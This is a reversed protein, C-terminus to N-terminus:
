FLHFQFVILSNSDCEDISVNLRKRLGLLLLNFFFLKHLKIVEKPLFKRSLKQAVDDILKFSVGNFVYGVDHEVLCPDVM